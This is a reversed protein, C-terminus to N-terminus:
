SSIYSTNSTINKRTLIEDNWKNLTITHTELTLCHALTKNFTSRKLCTHLPKNTLCVKPCSILQQASSCSPFASQQFHWKLKSWHTKAVSFFCVFLCFFVHNSNARSSNFEAPLNRLFFFFFCEWEMGMRHMKTKSGLPNTTEVDDFYLQIQLADQVYRSCLPHTAFQAGDCYDWM